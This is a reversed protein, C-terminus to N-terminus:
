IPQLCHFGTKCFSRESAGWKFESTNSSSCHNRSWCLWNVKVEKKTTKNM